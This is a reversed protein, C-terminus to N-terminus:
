SKRAKYSTARGHRGGKKKRGIVLYGAAVLVLAAIIIYTLGSSNNGKVRNWMDILKQTDEGTDHMMACRSITASSPYQVPNLCVASANEGFFYSVDGAPWELSDCMAALVEDGGICSVYGIADMDRVANESKCLFNIFYRAAKVNQAYKPIVWGDFWVISGEAPVAYRLEVGLKEAETIAWQADGSWSFNLWGREKTMYEKGFDAEWGAINDKFSCLYNEVLAISEDSCDRTITALDKEGSAIKDKSLAVLLSTYVDRFAEKMFIKGKLRPDRLIEWSSAEEDSIFKPNYILGATGWMYGVAYDNANKGFGDMENFKQRIYPAIGATYDPTDGFDRDIPLLLDKLLMKEIIYDSPCVVDFDEHGLEIKSLMTENVDFMQYVIRVVEGTQEKYWHEFEGILDEDIYDAWNYVKLINERSEARAETSSLGAAAAALIVSTLAATFLRSHSKEM